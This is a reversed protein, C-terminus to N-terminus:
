LIERIRGKRRTVGMQDLLELLPIAYKRSLGTLEKFDAVTLERKKSKELRSIIEDLWRSHLILGDKGQVIKKREVLLSLLRDLRPSSLGFRQRLDEFSLSRFEGKFCLDELEKLVDEEEPTLILLFESLSLKDEYEKIQGAHSLHKLALSLIRPHLEFRKKLRELSVGKQEPHSEHFKAVFRLIQQCLFDLSEQSLLFLPSFALIRIKGEAELEQALRQRIRKTLSSFDIIEQEKLGKLGKERILASLMEKEDGKLRELFAIRKKVKARNIKEAFPNLVLGEGLVPMKGPGQVKFKDKWKLLLPQRLHVLVFLAPKEKQIQEYFFLSASIKEAQILLSVELPKGREHPSFNVEADFCSTKM